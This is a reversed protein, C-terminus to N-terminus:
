ETRLAVLPDVRLARRLPIAAAILAVGTILLATYLLLLPDGGRTAPLPAALMWSWPLALLLGLALGLSVQVALRRGVMGAIRAPSAGIARRIGIERRRQAVTYALVGYLGSAALILALLGVAGFVQTLVALGLRGMRLAQAQTRVWYVATDPQEARVAEALLPALARADGRTQVALTSFNSAQQRLPVLYGPNRHNEVRDLHLAAVVGVVTLVEVRERQPNVRLRQGLPDRGPWLREALAQDIVAVPESDAQDRRDFFRGAVLPIDWTALFHDDVRAHEAEPYGDAPMAAGEASVTENGGGAFGPLATGASAEIVRPDARLREVVREFFAVQEAPTPFHEPFAGVRGTLVTAPDVRSGVDLQMMGNLGRLFVGAGVLLVVTLTIEIVVLARVLGSFGSGSGREGDRLVTQADARSAQLAPWLGALLTTALAAAAGYLVLWPDVGMTIWYPPHEENAIFAQMAWDGVIVALGLGLATALAALILSEFLLERLLSARGAGLAARLALERRRSLGQVLQLNAINICALALVLVGAGFMLWLVSRTAENVFRYALPASRLERQDRAGQLEAGLRTGLADLEARFQELGVGPALRAVVEVSWDDDVAMRRPLWVDGIVPFHFGEPMVGILTAPQGNLQVRRGLVAPDAAFDQRWVRHSLLAVTPAGPRDDEASFARGLVPQVGLLEFMARDFAVGDYRTPLAGGGPSLNATLNAYAGMGDISRLEARLRLFDASDLDGLWNSSARAHGVTVLREAQPFPLPKLVMSHVADLTFLMAGLGLSLLLLSLATYGPRQRLRRLANRLELHIM